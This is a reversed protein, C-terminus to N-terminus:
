TMVLRLLRIKRASQDKFSQLGKVYIVCQLNIKSFAHYPSKLAVSEIEYNATSANLERLINFAGKKM